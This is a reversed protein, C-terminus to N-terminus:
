RSRVVLNSAGDVCVLQMVGLRSHEFPCIVFDGFLDTDRSLKALIDEPLNCYEANYYKGESVGLIRKTGVGWIRVSPAGNWFNM